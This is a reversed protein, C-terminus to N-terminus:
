GRCCSMMSVYCINGPITYEDILFLFDVGLSWLCAQCRLVQTQSITRSVETNALHSRTDNALHSRTKTHCNAPHSKGSQAASLPAQNCVLEVSPPRHSHHLTDFLFLANSALKCDLILCVTQLEFVLCPLHRSLCLVPISLTSSVEEQHQFVIFM